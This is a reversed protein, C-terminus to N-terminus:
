LLRLWRTLRKIAKGMLGPGELSAACGIEVFGLLVIYGTPGSIDQIARM